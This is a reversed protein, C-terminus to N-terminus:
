ENSEGETKNTEILDHLRGEIDSSRVPWVHRRQDITFDNGYKMAKILKPTTATIQKPNPEDPCITIKYPLKAM